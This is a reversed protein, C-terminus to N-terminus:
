LELKNNQNQIIKKTKQKENKYVNEMLLRVMSVFSLTVHGQRACLVRQKKSEM